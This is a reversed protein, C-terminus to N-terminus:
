FEHNTLFFFFAGDFTETSIEQLASLRRRWNFSPPYSKEPPGTALFGGALAPSFLNSGRNLFIGCETPCSLEHQWLVSGVHWLQGHVRPGICLVLLGM